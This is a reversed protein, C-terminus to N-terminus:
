PCFAPRSAPAACSRTSQAPAAELSRVRWRRAVYPIPTLSPALMLYVRVSVQNLYLFSDTPSSAQRRDPLRLQSLTLSEDFAYREM